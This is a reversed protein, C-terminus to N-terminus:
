DRLQKVAMSKCAITCACGLCHSVERVIDTRTVIGSIRGQDDCMVVMHRSEDGLLAAAGTVPTNESMATLRERAIPLLREVTLM